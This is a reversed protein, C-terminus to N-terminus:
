DAGLPQDPKAKTVRKRRGGRTAAVVSVGLLALSLMAGLSPSALWRLPQEPTESPAEQQPDSYAQHLMPRDEPEGVLLPIMERILAGIDQPGRSSLWNADRVVEENLWTAGANVMDDRVGPWSTLTRNKVLGASALLLPAQSMLVIPRASDNMARVFDRAPLSQRLLDPSIYGGPILLGDYDEARADHVTKDVPVLDAPQHVEMGRIRGSHLSVIVVQAGAEKLAAVPAALEVKEFGDAALVAIRKGILKRPASM